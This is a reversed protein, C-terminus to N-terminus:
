SKKFLRLLPCIVSGYSKHSKVFACRLVHLKEPLWTKMNLNSMANFVQFMCLIILIGVLLPAAQRETM